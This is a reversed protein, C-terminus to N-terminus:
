LKKHWINMSEISGSINTNNVLTGAYSYSNRSFVTNMGYSKARAITYATKIGMECMKEEMKTLLYYSYGRGRYEPLTAFDTMEVNSNDVDMECSSVAILKGAKRIGFYVLNEQMTSLLYEPVQIPFPYSSFVSAYIEAMERVESEDCISCEEDDELKVEKSRDFKSLATDLVEKLEAPDKENERETSLFKAMFSADETGNYMGPVTAEEVHGLEQFYDKASSPIKSFIKSYDCSKAMKEIELPVEGYDHPSLKMLYVRDNFPGHQIVSKGIKLVQDSM